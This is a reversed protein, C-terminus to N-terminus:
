EPLTCKADVFVFPSEDPPRVCLSVIQGKIIYAMYSCDWSDLTKPSSPVVSLAARSNELLPALFQSMHYYAFSYPDLTYTCIM